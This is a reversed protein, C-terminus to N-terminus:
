RITTRFVNCSNSAVVFIFYHLLAVSAKMHLRLIIIMQIIISSLPDITNLAVLSSESVPFVLTKPSKLTNMFHILSGTTNKNEYGFVEQLLEEGETRGHEIPKSVNWALELLCFATKM